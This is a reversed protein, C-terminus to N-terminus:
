DASRLDALMREIGALVAQAQDLELLLQQREPTIPLLEAFRYGVWAADDLRQPAPFHEGGLEAILKRLLEGLWAQERPLPTPDPPEILEVTGIILGDDQTRRERLRFRTQGQTVLSFLGPSPVQWEVIHATCGTEYPIAPRGVEYGGRILAVGFPTGDRLCAKTMDVYRPEFIRLPLRGGPFLVTGLPFIPIELTTAMAAGVSM